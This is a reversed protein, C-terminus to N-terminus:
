FPTPFRQLLSRPHPPSSTSYDLNAHLCTPIESLFRKRVKMTGKMASITTGKESTLEVIIGETEGRVIMDKLDSGLFRFGSEMRPVYRKYSETVSELSREALAPQSVISAAATMAGSGILFTHSVVNRRSTLASNPHRHQPQIGNAIGITSLASLATFVLTIFTM